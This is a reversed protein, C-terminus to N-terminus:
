ISGIDFYEGSIHSGMLEELKGVFELDHSKIVFKDGCLDATIDSHKGLAEGLDIQGHEKLAEFEAITCIFLSDLEGMRGFSEAYKVLVRNTKPNHVTVDADNMYYYFSHYSGSRSINWSYEIGQITITASSLSYKGDDEWDDEEVEVTNYDFDPFKEVLAECFYDVVADSSNDDGHKNLIQELLQKIQETPYTM